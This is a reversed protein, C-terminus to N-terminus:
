AAEGAAVAARYGFLAILAAEAKDVDAKRRFALHAIDPFLRIALQRAAEKDAPIRFYRKWEAPTPYDVRINLGGIVGDIIGVGRGFRFASSIGQGRFANVREVYACVQGRLPGDVERGLMQSLQDALIVADVMRNTGVGSVPLEHLAILQGGKIAAWAGSVAGPDFGLVIM